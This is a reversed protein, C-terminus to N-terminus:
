VQVREVKSGGAVKRVEFRAPLREAFDRVHTIVGIMRGNSGLEEVAGAVTELTEPDLTGFGEDLFLSELRAGSASRSSVGEALALALSLSALFTEGGSLSKVSRREDANAHDIIQFENTDTVSISYQGMSLERLKVSALECLERFSRNLLWTEFRNTKLHESLKRYVGEKAGIVKLEEKIANVRDLSVRYSNHFQKAASLAEMCCDRISRHDPVIGLRAAEECLEQEKSSRQTGLDTALAQAAAAKEEVRKAATKAWELLEHWAKAPDGPVGGPPNLHVLKQKARAFQGEVEKAASRAKELEQERARQSALATTLAKQAAGYADRAKEAQTLSAKLENLLPLAKIAERQAQVEGQKQTRLQSMAKLTAEAETYQTFLKGHEEEATKTEVQAAQFDEPADAPCREFTGGCVPCPDGPNLRKAVTVGQHATKIGEFRERATERREKAAQEKTGAADRAEAAAKVEGELTKLDDEARKLSEHAAIHGKLTEISPLKALVEQTAPVQKGATAVEETAADFSSQAKAITESIVAVEPPIAIDRLLDLDKGAETAENRALTRKRELEEIEQWKAEVKKFLAALDTSREEAAKLGDSTFEGIGDLEGQKRILTNKLDTARNLAGQRLQSYIELSLLKRLLDNREAGSDHLFQAFAGQPLLVCRTFQDFSLGIVREIEPQVERAGAAVAQGGREFSCTPSGSRRVRRAISYAEDGVTFDLRVKAELKGQTIVPMVARRDYRPVSGYLSFVIADLISSKGAGTPGTLAFLEVGEFDIVTREKFSAFGELELRLPRM